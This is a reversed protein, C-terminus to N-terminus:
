VVICSCVILEGIVIECVSGAVFTAVDILSVLGLRINSWTIRIYFMLSM